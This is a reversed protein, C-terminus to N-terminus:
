KCGLELFTPAGHLVFILCFTLKALGTKYKLNSVNVEDAKCFKTFRQKKQIQQLLKNRVLQSWINAVEVCSQVFSIVVDARSCKTFSNDTFVTQNCIITNQNQAHKVCHGVEKPILTTHKLQQMSKRTKHTTMCLSWVNWFM